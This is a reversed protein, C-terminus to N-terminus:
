KEESSLCEFHYWTLCMDEDCGVWEIGHAEDDVRGRVSCVGCTYIPSALRSQRENQPREEDTTVRKRRVITQKKQKSESIKKVKEEKRRLKAKEKSLKEEAKTERKRKREEQRERKEELAKEKERLKILMDEGSIVRGELVVRSKKKETQAKMPQPM